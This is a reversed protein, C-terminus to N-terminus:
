EVVIIKESFTRKEKTTILVHYLGAPYNMALRHSDLIGQRLVKGKMDVLAITLGELALNDPVFVSGGSVVQNPYLLPGEISELEDTHVTKCASSVEGCYLRALRCDLIFPNVKNDQYSAIKYTRVWELSDVPDLEHWDCLTAKQSEFFNPDAGDASSRYMTYFYFLARAINGKFDERPEFGDGRDESYLDRNSSPPSSRTESKYYWNNTQNDPLEKFPDNARASNVPVRTPFLHHMDAQANGSSAGKGQPYSHELNIDENGGNRFLYQSPDENLDLYRALGSYVCRVSDNHLHVEKYLLDKADAFDPVFAPKYSDVLASFLAQDELNPFVTIHDYQSYLNLTCFVLILIKM